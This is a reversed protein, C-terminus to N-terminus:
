TATAGTPQRAEVAPVAQLQRARTAIHLSLWMIVLANVPHLASIIRLWGTGSIHYPFLLLSQVAVLLTVGGTIWLLRGPLKAIVGVVIMVLPLLGVITAGVDVHLDFGAPTFIGLGAFFFQVVVAAVLVIAMWAYATRAWLRNLVSSVM